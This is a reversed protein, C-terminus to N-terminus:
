RHPRATEKPARTFYWAVLAAACGALLYSVLALWYDGPSTSGIRDALGCTSTPSTVMGQELSSGPAINLEQGAETFEAQHYCAPQLPPPVIERLWLEGIVANRHTVLAQPDLGAELSTGYQYGAFASRFSLLFFTLSFALVGLGVMVMARGTRSSQGAQQLPKLSALLGIIGGYILPLILNILTSIM